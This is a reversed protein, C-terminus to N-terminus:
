CPCRGPPAWCRWSRRPSPWDSSAVHGTLWTAASWVILSFLIVRARGLRDALYGGFPSLVGYVWLFVTSILGLQFPTAHLDRELLPLLSFVVQRDLYNLVAVGWLVAVLLWKM